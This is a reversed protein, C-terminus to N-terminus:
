STKSDDFYTDLSWEFVERYVAAYPEDRSNEEHDLTPPRNTGGERTLIQKIAVIVREPPLGDEKLRTVFRSTAVRLDRISEPSNTRCAEAFARGLESTGSSTRSTYQASGSDRAYGNSAVTLMCHETLSAAM